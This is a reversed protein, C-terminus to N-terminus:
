REGGTVLRRFSYAARRLLAVAMAGSFLEGVLMWHTETGDAWLAAVPMWVPVVALLTSGNEGVWAALAMGSFFLFLALTVAGHLQAESRAWLGLALGLAAMFAYGLVGPAVVRQLPVGALAEGLLGLFVVQIVGPVTVSLFKGLVLEQASAISLLLEAVQSIREEGAIRASWVLATGLVLMGLVAVTQRLLHKGPLQNGIWSERIVASAAGPHHAQERLERELQQLLEQIDEASPLRAWVRLLTGGSAEPELWLLARWRGSQIHELLVPFLATDEPALPYLLLGGEASLQQLRRLWQGTGDWVAVLTSGREQKETGVSWAIAAGVLLPLWLSVVFSWQRWQQKWEWLSIRVLRALIVM